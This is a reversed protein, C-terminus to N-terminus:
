PRSGGAVAKTEAILTAVDAEKLAGIAKGAADATARDGNGEGRLTYVGDKYTLFFVFPMAPNGPASVFVLSRGDDCSSVIWQSGGFTKTVDGTNCVLKTPQDAASAAAVLAAGAILAALLALKMM